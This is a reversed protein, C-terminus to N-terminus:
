MKKVMKAFYVAAVGGLFQAIVYGGFDLNSIKKNILMSISVIPNIHGGSVKGVLYIVALLAVSIPIPEGVILIVSIFIFTGIFEGFYKVLNMM